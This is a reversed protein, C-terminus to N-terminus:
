PTNGVTLPGFGGSVISPLTAEDSIQTTFDPIIGAPDHWTITAVNGVGLGANLLINYAQADASLSVTVAANDASITGIPGPFTALSGDTLFFQIPGTYPVGVDTKQLAM